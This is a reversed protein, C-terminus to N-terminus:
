HSQALPFFPAESILDSLCRPPTLQTADQDCHPSWSKSSHSAKPPNSCLFSVGKLWIKLFVSVLLQWSQAAIPVLTHRTPIYTTCSHSGNLSVRVRCMPLEVGLRITKSFCVFIFSSMSAYWESCCCHKYYCINPFLWVIRWCSFLYTFQPTNM